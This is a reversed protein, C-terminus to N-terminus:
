SHYHIIEDIHNVLDNYYADAERWTLPTNRVQRVLDDWEGSLIGEKLRPDGVGHNNAVDALSRGERLRDRLEERPMGIVQAADDVISFRV